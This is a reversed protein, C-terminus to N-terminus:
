SRVGNQKDMARSRFSITFVLASVILLLNFATGRPANDSGAAIACGGGSVSTVMGPEMPEPEMPEPEMPEPEMPEPEMPEPEMPEMGGGGDAMGNGDCEPLESDMMEPYIGSGFIIGPSASLAPAGLYEFPNVVYSIKLSDGPATEPDNDAIDDSDVAPDDWCYKVFSGDEKPSTEAGGVILERVNQGAEDVAVIREEELNEDAGNYLMEGTDDMVFLYISGSKWNGDTRGFVEAFRHPTFECGEDIDARTLGAPPFFTTNSFLPILRKIDEVTSTSLDPIQDVVPALRTVKTFDCHDRIITNIYYEDIAEQVFQKLEEETDVDDAHIAHVSTTIGSFAGALALMCLFLGALAATKFVTNRMLIRM